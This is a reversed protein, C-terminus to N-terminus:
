PIPKLITVVKFFVRGQIMVLLFRSFYAGGATLNSPITHVPEGEGSVTKELKKLKSRNKNVWSILISSINRKNFLTSIQKLSDM